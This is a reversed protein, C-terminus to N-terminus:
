FDPDCIKEILSSENFSKDMTLKSQILRMWTAPHRFGKPVAADMGRPSPNGVMLIVVERIKVQQFVQKAKM